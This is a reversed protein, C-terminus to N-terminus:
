LQDVWSPAPIPILSSIERQIRDAAEGSAEALAKRWTDRAPEARGELAYAQGLMDYWDTMAYANGSQASETEICRLAEQAEREAWGGDKRRVAVRARAEAVNADLELPKPCMGTFEAWEPMQQRHPQVAQIGTFSVVNNPVMEAFSIYKGHPKFGKPVTYMTYGFSLRVQHAPGEADTLPAFVRIQADGERWRPGVENGQFDIMVGQFGAIKVYERSQDDAVGVLEPSVVPMPVRPGEKIVQGDPTKRTKWGKTDIAKNIRGNTYMVFVLGESNMWVDRVQVSSRDAGEFVSIPAQYRQELERDMDSRDVVRVGAPLAFAPMTSQVPNADIVMRREVTWGGPTRREVIGLFPVDSTRDAYLSVRVAEFRSRVSVRIAPRGGVIANTDAEFGFFSDSRQLDDIFGSLKKFEGSPDSGSSRIAHDEGQRYEVLGSKSWLSIVQGFERDFRVRGNDGWMDSSKVLRGDFTPTYTMVHWSSLADAAQKIRRYAAYAAAKPAIFMAAACVAAAGAFAIVLRFSTPRRGVHRDALIRAELRAPPWGSPYAEQLLERLTPKTQEM